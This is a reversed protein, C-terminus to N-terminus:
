KQQSINIVCSFIAILQEMLNINNGPQCSLAYPFAGGSGLVLGLVKGAVVPM